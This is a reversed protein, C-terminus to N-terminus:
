TGQKAAMLDLFPLVGGNGLILSNKCLLDM